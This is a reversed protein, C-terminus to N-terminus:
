RTQRREVQRAASSRTCKAARCLRRRPVPRRQPRRHRRPAEEATLAEADADAYGAAADYAGAHRTASPDRTATGDSCAEPARDDRVADHFSRDDDTGNDTGNNARDHNGASSDDPPHCDPASRRTRITPRRRRATRSSVPSASCKCGCRRRRRLVARKTAGRAASASSAAAGHGQSAPGGLAEVPRAPTMVAGIRCVSRWRLWCCWCPSQSPSLETRM